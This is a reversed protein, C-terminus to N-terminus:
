VGVDQVRFGLDLVAYSVDFGLRSCVLVFGQRFPVSCM